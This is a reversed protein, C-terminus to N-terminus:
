PTPEAEMGGCERVLLEGNRIGVVAVVTDMALFSGESRAVYTKGAISVKGVPRLATKAISSHGVLPMPDCDLATEEEAAVQASYRKGVIRDLLFLPLLLLTLFGYLNFFAM